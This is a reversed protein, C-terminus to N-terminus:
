RRFVGNDCLAIYHFAILCKYFLGIGKRVLFEFIGVLSQLKM